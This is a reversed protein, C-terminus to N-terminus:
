FPSGSVSGRAARLWLGGGQQPVCTASFRGSMKLYSRLNALCNHFNGFECGVPNGTMPGLPYEGSFFLLQISKPFELHLLTFYPDTHSREWLKWIHEQAKHNELLYSHATSSHPIHLRRFMDPWLTRKELHIEFALVLFHCVIAWLVTEQKQFYLKIPVYCCKNMQRKDTKPKESCHYLQTTTVVSITYNFLSFIWRKYFFNASGKGLCRHFVSHSVNIGLSIVVPTLYVTYVDSGLKYGKNRIERTCYFLSKM